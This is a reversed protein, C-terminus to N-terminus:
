EISIAAVPAPANKIVIRHKRTGRLNIRLREDGNKVYFSTGADDREVRQFKWGARAAAPIITNRVVHFNLGSVDGPVAIVHKRDTDVALFPHEEGKTTFAKILVKVLKDSPSTTM